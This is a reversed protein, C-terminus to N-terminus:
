YLDLILAQWFMRMWARIRIKDLPAPPPIAMPPYPSYIAIKSAKPRPQPPSNFGWGGMSSMGKGFCELELLM